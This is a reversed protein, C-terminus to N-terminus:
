KLLEIQGLPKRKQVYEDLQHKLYMTEPPSLLRVTDTSILHYNQNKQYLRFKRDLKEEYVSILDSEIPQIETLSKNIRWFILIEGDEGKSKFFDQSVKLRTGVCLNYVCSIISPIETKDKRVFLLNYLIEYDSKVLLAGLNIKIVIRVIQDKLNEVFM